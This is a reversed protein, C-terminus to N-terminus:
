QQLLVSKTQQERRFRMYSNIIRRREAIIKNLNKNTMIIEADPALFKFLAPEQYKLYYLGNGKHIPYMKKLDKLLATKM